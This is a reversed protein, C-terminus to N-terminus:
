SKRLFVVLAGSGGYQRPARGWEVVWKRGENGLYREAESRLVAEGDESHLGKGTVVLVTRWGQYVADQLFFGIKGAVDARQVGHLDLTAEPILKGRKLQKMRRASAPVPIEEEPLQDSFRVQLEGIAQRFLDEEGQPELPQNREFDPARAAPINKEPEEDDDNLRQVGLLEMEEDFSGFVKSVPTKEAPPPEPNESPGSVAFGKLNSFPNNIFDQDKPKAVKKKKAM